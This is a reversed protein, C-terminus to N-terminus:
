CKRLLEDVKDQDYGLELAKELWLRAHRRDNREVLINGANFAGASSGLDAARQYNELAKDLDKGVGLELEYCAGLDLLAQRLGMEAYTQATQFFKTSYSGSTTTPAANFWSKFIYALNPESTNVHAQVPEATDDANDFGVLELLTQSYPQYAEIMKKEICPELQEIIDDFDKKNDKTAEAGDLTQILTKGLVYDILTEEVDADRAKDCMNLAYDRSFPRGIGELSLMALRIYALPQSEAVQELMDVGTFEDADERETDTLIVAYLYRADTDDYEAARRIAAVAKQENKEAWDYEKYEKIQYMKYWDPRYIEYLQLLSQEGAFGGLDAAEEFFRICDAQKFESPAFGEKCIQGKFYICNAVGRDAGEKAWRWAEENNEEVGNGYYYMYAIMYYAFGDGLQAAKKYWRMAQAYDQKVFTGYYYGNALSSVATTENLKTGKM